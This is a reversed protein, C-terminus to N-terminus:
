GEGSPVSPVDYERVQWDRRMGDLVAERTPPPPEPTPQRPQRPEGVFRVEVRPVKDWDRANDERIREVRARHHMMAIEHEVDLLSRLHAELAADAQDRQWFFAQDPANDGLCDRDAPAWGWPEMSDQWCIAYLKM